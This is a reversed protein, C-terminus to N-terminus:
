YFEGPRALSPDSASTGLADRVLINKAWKPRRHSADHGGCRELSEGGSEAAAVSDLTLDADSPHRGDVEGIIPLVPSLDGDLDQTRIEDGREAGVPELSLNADGRSM